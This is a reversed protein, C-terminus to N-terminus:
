TFVAEYYYGREDADIPVLFLGEIAGLREHTLTYMRQPLPHTSPGRFVISFPHRPVSAAKRWSPRASARLPLAVVEVLEFPLTQGADLVLQFEEGVLPAFDKDSLKDLM